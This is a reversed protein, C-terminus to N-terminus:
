GLRRRTRKPKGGFFDERIWQRVLSSVSRHNSRAELRLADYVTEPLYVDVRKM